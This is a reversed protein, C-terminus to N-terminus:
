SCTKGLKVHHYVAPAILSIHSAGVRATLCARRAAMGRQCNAM